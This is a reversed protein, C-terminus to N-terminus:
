RKGLLRNKPIVAAKAAEELDHQLGASDRDSALMKGLLRPMFKVDVGFLLLPVSLTRTSNKADHFRGHFPEGAVPIYSTTCHPSVDSTISAVRRNIAALLDEFERSSRPRKSCVRRLLDRHSASVRDHAGFMAACGNSAEQAATSFVGTPETLLDGTACSFNRIQALWPRRQIFAAISFMHHFRGKVIPGLDRTAAGRLLNVSQEVPGTAGRLIERIWDSLTVDDIAGVGAYALLAAGDTCRLSVHKISADDIIRGTKPEVLRHDSAQWAGSSNIITLNLSM